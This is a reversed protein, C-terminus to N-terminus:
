AAIGPASFDGLSYDHLILFFVSEMALFTTALLIGSGISRSGPRMQRAAAFEALVALAVLVPFILIRAALSLAPWDYIGLRGAAGMGIGAFIFLFTTVWFADPALPRVPTTSSPISAQIRKRLDILLKCRSGGAEIASALRRCSECTVLHARAQSSLERGPAIILAEDVERCTM